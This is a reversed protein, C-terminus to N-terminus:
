ASPTPAGRMLADAAEALLRLGVVARARGEPGMSRLIADVRAPDLASLADRVRVGEETLRVNMVRRDSPDRESRVLGAERLRKLNLSMTSPTVRMFDALETVMTPDRADLQSLIRVQHETVEPAGESGPLTRARCADHIRPLAWLITQLDSM